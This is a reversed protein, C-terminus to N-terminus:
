KKKDTKPKEPEKIEIPTDTKKLENEDAEKRISKEEEDSESKDEIQLQEENIEKSPEISQSLSDAKGNDLKIMEIQKLSDEIAKKRRDIEDKYFTLKPRINSAFQSQPYRVNISDYFVAASDFLKLENELIWGGAYLAKPALPSKPYEMFISYFRRVSEDYKKSLYEKEANSYLEDAPDYNLNILTRKLQLAAANVIPETKYNEYIFNFISDAKEIKGISSYYTGLSYFSRSYYNSNPYNDVINKFYYYASDPVNLETFFLNALDYENKVIISHVSDISIIPRVPPNKATVQAPTKVPTILGKEDGENRGEGLEITPLEEQTDLTDSYFTISDRIFADPNELYNLQKRADALNKHTAQYKKFLLVKESAPKIYEPPATSSAAKIYFTSASDFNKYHYEFIEGLKFKAIGSSSTTTYTTDVKSLIDVSEEVRGLDYLTMGTELDIKDYSDSYKSEERMEELIALSKENEGVERLASALEIKSNLEIVFAPSYDSVKEFSAIANPLDNIKIYIRGLEYVVEANAVDNNSVDLFQNITSIAAPYNAQIILHVIEEAYTEEMIENEGEEIAQERVKGLQLLGDKYDKLRMQTKAIWLDNELILDSEPDTVLLEQFKRLAKQYNKQYYFSKGLMLLANDVYSSRSHFQLIKSCKEIVDNLLQPVNGSINLQEFELLYKRQEKIADEAEQFKDKTNYYINFYTTFDEWVSCGSFVFVFFTATILKKYSSNIKLM